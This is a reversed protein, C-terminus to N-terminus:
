TPSTQPASEEQKRRMDELVEEALDPRGLKKFVEALYVYAPWNTQNSDIANLLAEGAMEYEKEMLLGYGLERWADSCRCDLGIAVEAAKIATQYDGTHNLLWALETWNAVNNGDVTAIRTRVTIEKAYDKQARLAKAQEILRNVTASEGPAPRPAPIPMSPPPDDDDDGAWAPALGITLLLGTALMSSIAGKM